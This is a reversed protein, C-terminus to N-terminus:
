CGCQFRCLSWELAIFIKRGRWNQACTIPPVDRRWTSVVTGCLLREFDPWSMKHLWILARKHIFPCSCLLLSPTSCLTDLILRKRRLWGGFRGGGM